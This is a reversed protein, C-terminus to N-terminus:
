FFYFQDFNLLVLFLRCPMFKESVSNDLPKQHLIHPFESIQFLKKEDKGYQIILLVLPSKSFIHEQDAKLLIVSTSKPKARRCCLM